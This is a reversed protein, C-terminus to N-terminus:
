EYKDITQQVFIKAEKEATIEDAIQMVVDGSMCDRGGARILHTLDESRITKTRGDNSHPNTRKKKWFNLFIM